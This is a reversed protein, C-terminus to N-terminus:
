LIGSRGGCSVVGEEVNVGVGGGRGKRGVARDAVIGGDAASAAAQFVEVGAPAFGHGAESALSVAFARVAFVIVSFPSKEGKKKQGSM